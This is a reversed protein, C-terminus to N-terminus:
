RTLWAEPKVGEVRATLRDVWSSFLQVARENTPHIEAITSVMRMLVMLRAAGYDAWCSEFSYDSVGAGVLAEHYHRVLAQEREGSVDEDLSGTLFYALDYLGSGWSPVQWDAIIPRRDGSRDDFFLNDLRYDGHILTGPSRSVREFVQEVNESLWDLLSRIEDSLRDGFREEFHPRNRDYAFATLRPLACIPHIWPLSEIERSQWCSGQLQALAETAGLLDTDSAISVQDGLRAPALDELLLVYRRRGLRALFPALWMLLRFVFRPMRNLSEFSEADREPSGFPRPDMAAYYCRPMKVSLRPALEQYFFVEREYIGLAEGQGRLWRDSTPIKIVLTKPADPPIAGALDLHLRATDGMFGQGEGLREVEFHGVTAEGIVKADQLVRTLWAPTVADLHRPIDARAM